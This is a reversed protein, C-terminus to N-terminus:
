WLDLIFVALGTSSLILDPLQCHFLELSGCLLLVASVRRSLCVFWSTQCGLSCLLIRLDRHPQLGALRQANSGTANRLQELLHKVFFEGRRMPLWSPGTSPVSGACAALACGHRPPSEHQWAGAVNDFSHSKLFRAILILVPDCM